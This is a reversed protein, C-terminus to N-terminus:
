ECDKRHWEWASGIIDDLSVWLPKWDLIRGAKEASAVLVAPDGSRPPKINYPINSGLKRKASEIVDLVSYGKGNGLNVATSEGGDLLYQAAQIHARALDEVHIYDRVCSGDATSYANGYIEFVKGDKRLMSRLINPILHSEPEHREGIGAGPIAGAANFYRLSVYQLGYARSYDALMMEIMMKSWGYPSIPLLSHEETIPIEHPIGYVAASSSFIINQVGSALMADLLNITGVVNNGYYMSPAAVSEAVLSRAAFHLVIDPKCKQLLAFVKQRDRLDAEVLLCGANAALDAHGTSLNDVIVSDWNRAHSYYAVSSGIYGGGGIILASIM